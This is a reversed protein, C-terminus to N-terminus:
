ENDNGGKEKDEKSIIPTPKVTVNKPKRGRTKKVEGASADEKVQVEDTQEQKDTQEKEKTENKIEVGFRWADELRAWKPKLVEDGGYKGILLNYAKQSVHEISFDIAKKQGQTFKLRLIPVKKANM